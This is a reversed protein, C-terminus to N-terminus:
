AEAHTPEVWAAFDYIETGPDVGFDRAAKATLRRVEILGLELAWNCIHDARVDPVDDSMAESLVRRAFATAAELKEDKTM